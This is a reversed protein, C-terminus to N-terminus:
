VGEPADNSLPVDANPKQWVSVALPVAAVACMAVAMWSLGNEQVDYLAVAVVAGSFTRKASWKRVNGTGAEKFLETLDLGSLLGALNIRNKM